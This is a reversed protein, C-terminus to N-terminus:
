NFLDASVWASQKNNVDWYPARVAAEIQVYGPHEWPLIRQMWKDAASDDEVVDFSKIRGHGMRSKAGLYTIFGTEPSLLDEIAEKDGICWAQVTTIDRVPYYKYMQKFKGRLVDFQQSYSHKALPFKTRTEIQASNMREAYDYPDSKRTWFRMAHEGPNQAILASAKWCWSDDRTARDLPLDIFDLMTEHPQRKESRILHDQAVAYTLLADLHLPNSGVVMPSCLEWTLKLPELHM